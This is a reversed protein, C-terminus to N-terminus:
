QKSTKNRERCYELEELGREWKNQDGEKMNSAKRLYNERSENRQLMLAKFFFFFCNAARHM